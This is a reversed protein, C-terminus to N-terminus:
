RVVVTVSGSIAPQYAPTGDFVAHFRYTGRANPNYRYWWTAPSGAAIVRASSYSWYSKGPRIVDVHMLRGALASPTVLGSLNFTKGLVVGSTSRVITISTPAASTTVTVTFPATFLRTVAASSRDWRVRYTATTSPAIMFAFNGNVDSDVSGASTWVGGSLRELVLPQGTGPTGDGFQLAGAVGALNGSVIPSSPTALTTFSGGVSKAMATAKRLGAMIYPPNHAGGSLDSEYFKENVYARGLLETGDPTASAPRAMAAEIAATALAAAHAADSQWAEVSTQLETQPVSPHCPSCSDGWPALGWDKADGPEMIKMSHSYRKWSQDAYRDIGPPYDSRTAPMHCEECKAGPMFQGPSAVDFLGRGQRVERQPHSVGRGTTTPVLVTGQVEQQWNHCDECLSQNGVSLGAASGIGAADPERLSLGTGDSKHSYHCVACEQGYQGVDASTYSWDSMIWAGKRKLFGEGTHCRVCSTRGPDYADALATTFHSKDAKQYMSAGPSASTLAGRLSHASLTWESYYTHKMGKDQGSPWFKASARLGSSAEFTAEDPIADFGFPTVFATLTADATYGITNGSKFTGHCQGCVQSDLIRRSAAQGYQTSSWGGVIQVGSTWHGLTGSDALGTGHCRECQISAGKEWSAKAARDDAPDLAWGNRTAVASGSFSGVAPKMGRRQYGVQHCTLCTYEGRSLGTVGLEWVSPADPYWVLGGAQTIPGTSTDSEAPTFWLYQREGTGAGLTFAVDSAQMLLGVGPRGAPWMGAAGPAPVAASTAFDSHTTRDYGNTDHCKRQTCSAQGAFTQGYDNTLLASAVAPAALMAACVVLAALVSSRIRMTGGSKTM